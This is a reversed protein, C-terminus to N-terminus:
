RTLRARDLDVRDGRLPVGERRLRELQEAGLPASGDADPDASPM